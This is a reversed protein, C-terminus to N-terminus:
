RNKRLLSKIEQLQQRLDRNEALVQNLKDNLEGVQKQTSSEHTKLEDANQRIQQSARQVLGHLSKTSEILPGVMNSYKVSKYGTQPNTAVLEPLVKEVDQAILGIDHIGSDRWDFQAGNLALVAELGPAKHINNKLRRDSSYYFATAQVGGNM